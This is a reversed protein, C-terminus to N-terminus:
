GRAPLPFGPLATGAPLLPIEAIQPALLPAESSARAPATGSVGTRERSKWNGADRSDTAASATRQPGDAQQREGPQPEGQQPVGQQPTPACATGMEAPAEVEVPALADEREARDILRGILQQRRLKQLVALRSFQWDLLKAIRREDLSCDMASHHWRHPDKECHAAETGEVLAILQGQYRTRIRRCRAMGWEHEVM